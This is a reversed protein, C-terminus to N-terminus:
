VYYILFDIMNLGISEIQQSKGLSISKWCFYECDVIEVSDSQEHYYNSAVDTHINGCQDTADCKYCRIARILLPCLILIALCIISRKM